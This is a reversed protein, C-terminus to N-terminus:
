KNVARTLGIRVGLHLAPYFGFESRAENLDGDLPCEEGEAVDQCHVTKTGFKTRMSLGYYPEVLISKWQLEVGQLVKAGIVNNSASAIEQRAPFHFRDHSLRKYLVYGGYWSNRTDDHMGRAFFKKMGLNIVPGQNPPQINQFLESPFQQYGLKVEYSTTENKRYEGIVAYEGTVILGPKIKIRPQPEDPEQANAVVSALMLLCFLFSIRQLANIMM